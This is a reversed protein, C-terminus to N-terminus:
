HMACCEWKERGFEREVKYSWRWSIRECLVQVQVRFIFERWAGMSSGEGGDIGAVMSSVLCIYWVFDLSDSSYVDCHCM